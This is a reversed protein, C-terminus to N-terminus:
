AGIKGAAELVEDHFNGNTAIIGRQNGLFRGSTLDLSNGDLDSVRGGAEEIVLVGAAHDWVKERYGKM